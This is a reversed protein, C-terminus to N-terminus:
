SRVEVGSCFVTTGAEDGPGRRSNELLSAGGTTNDDGLSVASVVLEVMAGATALEADSVLVPALVNAIPSAPPLKPPPPKRPPPRPGRVKLPGPEALSMTTPLSAGPM